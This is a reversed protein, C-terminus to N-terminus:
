RTSLDLIEVEVDEGQSEVSLIVDPSRYLGGVGGAVLFNDSHYLSTFGREDGPLSIITRGWKGEAPNWYQVGCDTIAGLGPKGGMDEISVYMTGRCPLEVETWGGGNDTSLYHAEGDSDHGILYLAGGPAKYIFDATDIPPTVATFTVGDDRSVYLDVAASWIGNDGAVAMSLTRHDVTSWSLGGDTTRFAGGTDAVILAGSETQVAARGTPTGLRDEVIVPEEGSRWRVVSGQTGFGLITGDKLPHFAHLAEYYSGPGIEMVAYHYEWTTGEDNSVAVGTNLQVMMEGNPGRKIETPSTAHAVGVQEFTEGGGEMRWIGSGLDSLIVSGSELVRTGFIYRPPIPFRRVLLGDPSIRYVKGGWTGTYLDGSPSEGIQGYVLPLQGTLAFYHFTEGRDISRYFGNSTGILLAGSSLIAGNVPLIPLRDNLSVFTEGMDSSYWARSNGVVMVQDNDLGFSQAGSMVGFDHPLKRWNEGADGSVFLGEETMVWSSDNPGTRAWHVRGSIGFNAVVLTDGGELIQFVGGEIGAFALVAGNVFGFPIAGLPNKGYQEWTAGDDRSIQVGRGGGAYAIVGEDIEVTPYVVGAFPEKLEEWQRQASLESAVLFLALTTFLGFFFPSFSHLTRHDM